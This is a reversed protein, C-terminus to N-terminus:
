SANAGWLKIFYHEDGVQGGKFNIEIGDLPTNPAFARCLPAGPSFPAIMEVAEIGLARAILSSTDGGAVGLRGLDTTRAIYRAIEGLVQGHIRATQASIETEAYGKQRLLERTEAIREDEQGLSTHLIVPFGAEMFALTQEICSRMLTQLDAAPDVASAPVAVARFGHLLAYEIQKATVPSCSGSLVLLKGVRNLAPWDVTQKAVGRTKWYMGFAMEVGSSGISFLPKELTGYADLVEAIPMLDSLHLADFLVMPIGLDLCAQTKIRIEEVGQHVSLIDVLGIPLETQKSLHLRLDAEQMPTVPHYSIAPHRDLRYIDGRSGIGMKAFLNGFLCFRGLPPAAVLLPVLRPNFVSIGVEAATGISGIQPSSDFTSCVKYHVHRAGLAKLAAFAQSLENGMAVPDMTRTMGAVGIAQIGPYRALQEVNPVDIFLVTKLGAQNLCELADTSGTFDDGYYAFFPAQMADM